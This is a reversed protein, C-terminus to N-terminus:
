MKSTLILSPHTKDERFRWGLNVCLEGQSMKRGGCSEDRGQRKERAGDRRMSMIEGNM